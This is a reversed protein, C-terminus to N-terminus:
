LGGVVDYSVQKKVKSKEKVAIWVMLVVTLLVAVNTAILLIMWTLPEISDAFNLNVADLIDRTYRAGEVRPYPRNTFYVSVMYGTFQFCQMLIVALQAPARGLLSKIKLNHILKYLYINMSKKQEEIEEALCTNLKIYGKSAAM